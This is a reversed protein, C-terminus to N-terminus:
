AAPDDRLVALPYRPRLGDWYLVHRGLREGQLHVFGDRPIRLEAPVAGDIGVVDGHREARGLRRLDALRRRVRGRLRLSRRRDLRRGRDPAHPGALWNLYHELLVYGDAAKTM